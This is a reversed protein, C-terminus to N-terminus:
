YNLDNIITLLMSKCNELPIFIINNGNKISDSFQVYKGNSHIYNNTYSKEFSIYCPIGNYIKKLKTLINLNKQPFSFTACCIPDHEFIFLLDNGKCGTIINYCFSTSLYQPLITNAM